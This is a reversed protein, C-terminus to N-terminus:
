SRHVFVEPHPSLVMKSFSPPPVFVKEINLNSYSVKELKAFNGEARGQYGVSCFNRVCALFSTVKLGRLEKSCIRFNLLVQYSM